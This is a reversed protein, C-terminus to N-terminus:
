LKFKLCVTIEWIKGLKDFLYINSILLDFFKLTLLFPFLLPERNGAICEVEFLNQRCITYIKLMFCKQFKKDFRSM